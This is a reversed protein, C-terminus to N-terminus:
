KKKTLTNDLYARAGHYYQCDNEVIEVENKKFTFVLDCNDEGYFHGTKLDEMKIIGDASGTHANAGTVNYDFSYFQENIKSILLQDMVEVLDEGEGNYVAIEHTNQYSNFEIKPEKGQFKTLLTLRLTQLKADSKSKKWEGNLNGNQNKFELYGTTKGKYSETLNYKGSNPDYKGSLQLLKQHKSYYYNGTVENSEKITLFVVVHKEYDGIVGEYIFWKTDEIATQSESTADKVEPIDETKEPSEVTEEKIKDSSPEENTCGFLVTFVLISLYIHKKM